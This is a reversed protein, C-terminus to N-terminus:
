LICDLIEKVIGVNAEFEEAVEEIPRRFDQLRAERCIAVCLANKEEFLYSKGSRAVAEYVEEGANLLKEELDENMLYFKTYVEAFAELFQEKGEGGNLELEHTFFERYISFLVVGFSNEENRAVLGNLIYMKVNMGVAYNLLTERVIKDAHSKVLALMAEGYLEEDRTELRDFALRFFTEASSLEGLRRADEEDADLIRRFFAHVFEREEKPLDYSYDLPIEAAPDERKLRLRELYYKAIEKKPYILTMTELSSIAEELRGTRYSAVAHYYLIRDGYPIQDKLRTYLRYSEEDRGTVHQAAAIYYLEEPSNTEIEYMMQAIKQGEEGDGIMELFTCLSKLVQVNHPFRSVLIECQQAAKDKDNEFLLCCASLGLAASYSESNADVHSLVERAGEFDAKRVKEIAERYLETGNDDASYVLRLGPPESIRFDVSDDEFLSQVFAGSKMDEGMGLIANALGAYGEEFDAENCTDLFHLWADASLQYLGLSEYVDAYLANSDASPGYREERENLVKLTGLFDGKDFRDEAREMYFEESFDLRRIKEDM